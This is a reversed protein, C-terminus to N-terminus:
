KAEEILARIATVPVLRRGAIIVTELKGENILEYLSTRGIGLAKCADNITLTLPEINNRHTMQLGQSENGHVVFGCGVLGERSVLAFDFIHLLNL